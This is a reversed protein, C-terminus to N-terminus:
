RRASSNPSGGVPPMPRPMSRRVISSAPTVLMRSTIRNGGRLGSAQPDSSGGATLELPLRETIRRRIETVASTTTPSTAPDTALADAAVTDGELHAGLNQLATM